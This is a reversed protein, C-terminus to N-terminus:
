LDFLTPQKYEIPEEFIDCTTFYMSMLVIVANIISREESPSAKRLIFTFIDDSNQKFTNKGQKYIASFKIRLEEKQEPKRKFYEKLESVQYSGFRIYDAAREGLKNFVIKRDRDPDNPINYGTDFANMKLLYNIVENLGLADLELNTPDPIYIIADIKNDNLNLAIEELQHNFLLSFSIDPFEKELSVIAKNIEPELGAKYKDNVVFTYQNVKYLDNWYNYLEKFDDNLKNKAERIRNSLEKPAYVQYYTGTTKDYGDNSRDGINGYATVSQFNDNHLVMIKVFFEEYAQGDCEYVKNRFFSRAIQKEARNM